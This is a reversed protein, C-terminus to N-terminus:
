GSCMGAAEGAPLLDWRNPGTRDCFINLMAKPKFQNPRLTPIGRQGPSLCENSSTLKQLFDVKRRRHHGAREDLCHSGVPLGARPGATYTALPTHFPRQGPLFPESAGLNERASITSYYNEAETQTTDYQKPTAYAIATFGRERYKCIQDGFAYSAASFDGTSVFVEFSQRFRLQARKPDVTRDEHDCHTGPPYDLDERSLVTGLTRNGGVHFWYSFKSRHTNVKAADGLHVADRSLAAADRM